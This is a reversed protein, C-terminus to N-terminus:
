KRNPSRNQASQLGNERLRRRLDEMSARNNGSDHMGHHHDEEWQSEQEEWRDSPPSHKRERCDNSNDERPGHYSNRHSDDQRSDHHNDDQWSDRGRQPYGDRRRKESRELYDVRASLDDFREQFEERITERIEHKMKDMVELQHDTMAAGIFGRQDATGSGSQSAAEANAMQLRLAITKVEKLTCLAPRDEGCNMDIAKRYKM